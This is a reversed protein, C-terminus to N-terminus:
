EDILQHYRGLWYPLLIAVGDDRERGDAGGDLVYPDGNWRMVQRESPPLVEQSQMRRFRNLGAATVDRRQSNNVTWHITDRPVDRFWTICADRDYESPMLYSRDPPKTVDGRFNAQVAAGYILNFLPSREPREFMWSRKISALYKQRLASERELVMLPYYSLFALEDDSHNIENTPWVHKQGVANTAYAHKEILEIRKERYRPKGTIYEAVTLFSLIELSNLGRDEFRSLDHNLKEPAWVGWTTPKGSPGVLYLGHDLIHDTIRSIVQAIEQRQQADAAVAYYVLYAFYHGVIEDSSTDGKWWWKGDASRHWEGGDPRPDQAIPVISRAPFGPIGTITELRMMAELSRRANRQAEVDGTVAYCFAEAAVYLSTWLGDNDDTRQMEATELNGPERLSIQSAYGDRLHYKRCMSQIFQIKEPLTISEAYLRTSGASTKVIVERDSRVSLDVVDDAPLWRRSHFLRWRSAGPTRLMLGQSSGVWLTGDALRKGVTAPAFPLTPEASALMGLEDATLSEGISPPLDRGEYAARNWELFAADDAANGSSSAALYVLVGAVLLFDTGYRLLKSRPNGHM